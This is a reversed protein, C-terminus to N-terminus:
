CVDYILAQEDCDPHRPCNLCEGWIKMPLKDKELPKFGHKLFFNPERTLTFVQKFGYTKAESIASELLATGVGKGLHCPDVALSKVEALDQWCIHLSCCGIIEDAQVAVFYDRINDYLYSLSRSLMLQKSAYVEILERIRHVEGIRSKRVEMLM